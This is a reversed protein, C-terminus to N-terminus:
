WVMVKTSEDSLRPFVVSPNAWQIGELLEKIGLKRGWYPCAYVMGGERLVDVLGQRYISKRQYSKQALKVAPGELVIVVENGASLLSKAMTFATETRHHNEESVFMLVRIHPLGENPKLEHAFIFLFSFVLILFGRLM